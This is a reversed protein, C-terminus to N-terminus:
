DVRFRFAGCNVARPGGQEQSLAVERCAFSRQPSPTTIQVRRVRPHELRPLYRGYATEWSLYYNNRPEERHSLQYEYTSVARLALRCRQAAGAGLAFVAVERVRSQYPCRVQTVPRAAPAPRPPAVRYVVRTSNVVYPFDFRTNPPYVEYGCLTWTRAVREVSRVVPTWGEGISERGTPPPVTFILQEAGYPWVVRPNALCEVDGPQRYVTIPRHAYATTTNLHTSVITTGAASRTQTVHLSVDAAAQGAAALLCAGAVALAGLRRATFM